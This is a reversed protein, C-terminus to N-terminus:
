GVASFINKTCPRTNESWTERRKLCHEEIKWANETQRQEVVRKVCHFRRSRIGGEAKQVSEHHGNKEGEVTWGRANRDSVRREEPILIRKLMNGYQKTDIKEPRCRNMLGPGLRCRAYGSCKRCWVLAECNPDVSRVLDRVGLQVKGWRKMKHKCDKELWVPGKCTGLM